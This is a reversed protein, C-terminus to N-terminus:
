FKIVKQKQSYYYNAQKKSRFYYFVNIYFYNYYKEIEEKLKQIQFDLKSLIIEMTIIGKDIETVPENNKSFKVAQFTEDCSTIKFFFLKKQCSLYSLIINLDNKSIENYNKLLQQITLSKNNFKDILENAKQQLSEILFFKKNNMNDSYFLSFLPKKILLDFM